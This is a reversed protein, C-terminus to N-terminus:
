GLLLVGGAKGRAESGWRSGIGFGFRIVLAVVVTISPRTNDGHGRKAAEAFIDVGRLLHPGLNGVIGRMSGAVARSVTWVVKLDVFFYEHIVVNRMARM